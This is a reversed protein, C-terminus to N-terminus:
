RYLTPFIYGHLLIVSEDITIISGNFYVITIVINSNM